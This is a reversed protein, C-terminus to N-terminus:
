GAIGIMAPAFVDRKHARHIQVTVAERNGPRANLGGPGARRIEFADIVVAAENIGQQFRSDARKYREVVPIQRLGQFIGPAPGIAIRSRTKSVVHVNDRAREAVANGIPHQEVFGGGNDIQTIQFARMSRPAFAEEVEQASRM